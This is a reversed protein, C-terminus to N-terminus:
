LKNNEINIYELAGLQKLKFNKNINIQTIYSKNIYRIKNNHNKIKIEIMDNLPFINANINYLNFEDINNFILNRNDYIYDYFKGNNINYKNNSYVIDIIRMCDFFNDKNNKNCGM